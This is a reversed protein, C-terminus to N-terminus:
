PIVRVPFDVHFVRRQGFRQIYAAKIEGLKASADPTNPHVILLLRTGPRSLALAAAASLAAGPAPDPAASATSATGATAAGSASAGPSGATGNGAPTGKGAPPAPSAPAASAPPAATTAGGSAAPAPSPPHAAVLGQAELVTLGGPFRPAVVEAVFQVWQQESVGRGDPTNLSFFLQSELFVSDAWPTPQWGPASVANDQARAPGTLLTALLLASFISAAGAKASHSFGDRPDFRGRKKARISTRNARFRELPVRM